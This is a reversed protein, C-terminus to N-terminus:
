SIPNRKWNNGDLVAAYDPPTGGAPARANLNSVEGPNLNSVQVCIARLREIEDAADRLLREAIPAHEIADPELYARLRAVIDDM